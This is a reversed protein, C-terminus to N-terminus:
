RRGPNVNPPQTRLSRDTPHIGVPEGSRTHARPDCRDTISGGAPSNRPRRAHTPVHRIVYVATALFLLLYCGSYFPVAIHAWWAPLDDRPLMFLGIGIPHPADELPPRDPYSWWWCFSALFVTACPLWRYRTRGTHAHHLAIVFLVAFWVWHHGWSFPSACAATMGAVTVSLLIRGSRYARVAAYLGFLVLPVAVTLWMWTPPAYVTSTPGHVAYRDVDYFRLLQALFGNVSQNAPSDVPGVRAPANFQRGWYTTSDTPRILFGIGITAAFAATATWFTRWQRTCALYVLFFAPTLKIGAAIGVAAGRLRAGGPRTLDWVILLVLFINIQGLWITSRVPEFATCVVALALALIWTRVTDRYGLARLCVVVLAILAVMIAAWWLVQAVAPTTLTFVVFLLAAFPTYTFEMDFFVPTDYLSVGYRIAEGGATYVYRDVDNSFLGYYPNGIPIAYFHWVLVAAAALLAVALLATPIDHRPPEREAPVTPRQHLTTTM